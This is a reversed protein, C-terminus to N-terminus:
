VRKVVVRTGEVCMIYRGDINFITVEPRYSYKYEYKYEAQQWEQGNLLKYKTKGEWGKFSGDIHSEIVDSLLRVPISQECVTLIKRGDEETITAEPRYAYHYWYKYQDQIWYSGNDMKFIANDDFGEFDSDIRGRFVIRSM